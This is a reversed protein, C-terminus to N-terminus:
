KRLGSILVWGDFIKQTTIDFWPQYAELIESQQNELIGSLAIKSGAATLQAFAPALEILPKALINALIVQASLDKPLESPLFTHLVNGTINNREANDTTATIAQPDNDVAMVKAAGLKCAAIALIGSGCGYDIVVQKEPPHADLWELCLATTPHTGTGFALGPDLMINTAAPDPPPCWSPCIWLGSGFKMPQYTDMWVREWDKDELREIQYSLPSSANLMYELDAMANDINHNLEFLAIIRTQDWLPTTGVEPELVPQDAADQLTVAVAGVHPLLESALEIQAPEVTIKVQLWAM